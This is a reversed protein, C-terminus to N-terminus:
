QGGDSFNFMPWFRTSVRLIYKLAFDNLKFSAIDNKIIEVHFGYTELKAPLTKFVRFRRDIYDAMSTSKLLYKFSTIHTPCSSILDVDVDFNEDNARFSFNQIYLGGLLGGCDRCGDRYVCDFDHYVTQCKFYFRTPENGCVASYEMFDLQEDLININLQTLIHRCEKYLIDLKLEFSLDKIDYEDLNTLVNDYDTNVDTLIKYFNTANEDNSWFTSM